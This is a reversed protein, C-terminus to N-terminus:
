LELVSDERATGNVLYNLIVTKGDTEVFHANDDAKDKDGFGCWYGCNAYIRDKVFLTDKDMKTDHSHGFIVIDVGDRCLRDAVTGLRNLESMIMQISQWFGVADKWDDFLNRYRERVEDYQQDPCIHGMTFKEVKKPKPPMEVADKLADLVSEPLKEAGMIQFSEDIAQFIMKAKSGRSNELTTHLRTIYYGLPLRLHPGGNKADPRNFLAYQHGHEALVNGRRYVNGIHRIKGEFADSINQSTVQYDHNGNVYLTPVAAAMEKIGNVVAAHHRIIQEFTHPKVNHPCVWLDFVDGLLVVEKIDKQKAHRNKVYQFFNILKPGELKADFWDWSNGAGLHIDSVFLTKKKGSM